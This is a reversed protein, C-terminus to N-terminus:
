LLQHDCLGWCLGELDLRRRFPTQLFQETCRTLFTLTARFHVGDEPVDGLAAIFGQLVAVGLPGPQLLLWAALVAAGPVQMTGESPQAGVAAGARHVQTMTLQLLAAGEARGDAAVAGDSSQGERLAFGEGDPCDGTTVFEAPDGASCPHPKGWFVARHGSPLM